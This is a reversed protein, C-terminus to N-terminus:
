SYIYPILDVSIFICAEGLFRMYGIGKPSSPNHEFCIASFDDLWVLYYLNSKLDKIEIYNRFYRSPNPMEKYSDIIKYNRM